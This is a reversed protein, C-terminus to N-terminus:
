LGHPQLSNSVVSRFHCDRQPLPAPLAMARNAPLPPQYPLLLSKHEPLGKDATNGHTHIHTHTHASLQETTDLEKAVGHVTARWAGRDMPNGLCSYQLPNGNAVGPIKGVWPDFWHRKCKWCQCASEKGSTGRPLVDSELEMFIQGRLM